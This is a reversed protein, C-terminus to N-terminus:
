INYLHQRASQQMHQPDASEQEYKTTNEDESEESTDTSQLSAAIM